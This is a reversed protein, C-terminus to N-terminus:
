RGSWSETPPAPCRPPWARASALVGHQEQRVLRGAVEVRLRCVRDELQNLLEVAFRPHGDYHNRVVVLQAFPRIATPQLVATFDSMCHAAHRLGRRRRGGSAVAADGRRRGRGGRRNRGHAGAGSWRAPGLADQRRERHLLSDGEGEPLPNPYPLEVAPGFRIASHGVPKGRVGVREGLSIPAKM